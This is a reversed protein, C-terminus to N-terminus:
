QPDRIMTESTRFDKYRGKNEKFGFRKYFSVLRSRSTTGQYPDKLGPSLLIRKHTSDAYRILDELFASGLGQKRDGKDVIISNLIIDDGKEYVYLSKFKDKWRDEVDQVDENIYKHFTKIM